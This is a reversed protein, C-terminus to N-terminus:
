ADTAPHQLACVAASFGRRHVLCMTFVADRAWGHRGCEHWPQAVGSASADVCSRDLFSNGTAADRISQSQVCRRRGCIDVRGLHPLLHWDACKSGCPRQLGRERPRGEAHDADENEHHRADAAGAGHRRRGAAPGRRTVRLRRARRKQRRRTRLRRGAVSGADNKPPCQLPAWRAIGANKVVQASCDIAAIMVLPM